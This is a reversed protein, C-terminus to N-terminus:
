NNKQSLKVEPVNPPLTLVEFEKHYTDFYCGCPHCSGLNGLLVNGLADWQKQRTKKGYHMSTGHTGWTLSVGLSRYRSEDSWAM